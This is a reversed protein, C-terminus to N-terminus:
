WMTGVSFLQFLLNNYHRYNYIYNLFVENAIFKWHIAKKQMQLLNCAHMNKVKFM